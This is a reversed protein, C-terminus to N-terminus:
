RIMSFWLEEVGPGIVLPAYRLELKRTTKPIEFTVFGRARQGSTLRISPLGPECGALTSTYSDGSAGFLTAYFPNVPVELRSTGELSVEIGVKVFGNKPAFPPELLCDKVSEASMTYDHARGLEGLPHVRPEAGVVPAPAEAPPAPASVAPAQGQDGSRCGCALLAAVPVMRRFPDFARARVPNSSQALDERPGADPNVPTARWGKSDDASGNGHIPVVEM